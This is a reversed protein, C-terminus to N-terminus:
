FIWKFICTRLRQTFCPISEGFELYSSDTPTIYVVLVNTIKPRGGFFNFHSSILHRSKGKQLIERISTQYFWNCSQSKKIFRKFEDASKNDLTHPKTSCVQTEIIPNLLVQYARIMDYKTRNKMPKADILNADIDVMIM